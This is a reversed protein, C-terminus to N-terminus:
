RPMKKEQMANRSEIQYKEAVEPSQKSGGWVLDWQLEVM